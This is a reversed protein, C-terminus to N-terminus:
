KAETLTRLVEPKAKRWPDNETAMEYARGVRFLKDETWDAGLLQIGIPLGDKDLGGPLSLGPVGAHNAPVTLQDAYQM